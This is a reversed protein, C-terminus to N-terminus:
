DNFVVLLDVDSDATEEGRALSGFLRVNHANRLQAAELLRDRNAAVLQGRPGKPVFREMHSDYARGLRHAIAMYRPIVYAQRDIRLLEQWTRARAFDSAPM